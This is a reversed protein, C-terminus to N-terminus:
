SVGAVGFADRQNKIRDRVLDWDSSALGPDGEVADIAAQRAIELLRGDHVLDAMGLDANGSQQTGAVMGPGRLELDVDAIRFGDNTEVMVELRRRSEENKADAVLVCYSQYEGRGVRGRLQHLQALGFRNADEIVMISANPVDVGVEIVTTAVLVSLEASAFRGMVDAKAAAPLRGHLLGVGF